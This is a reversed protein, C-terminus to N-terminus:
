FIILLSNLNSSRNKPADVADRYAATDTQGLTPRHRKAFDDIKTDTSADDKM